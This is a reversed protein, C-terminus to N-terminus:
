RRARAWRAFYAEIEDSFLWIAVAAAMAVAFLANAAAMDGGISSGLFILVAIGPLRGVLCSIVLKWVPLRTLGAIFCIADDPLAPLLFLMFFNWLGGEKILYDFKELVQKSVLRRVVREGFFRGIGIAIASGAALGVMSLLLGNWFGFLMGGLLGIAQAPIPAFLVQAVQVILYAVHKRIGLRDFLAEISARIAELDGSRLERLLGQVGPPLLPHLAALLAAFVLTLVIAAGVVPAMGLLKTRLRRWLAGAFRRVPSDTKRGGASM